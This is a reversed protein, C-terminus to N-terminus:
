AHNSGFLVESSAKSKKFLVLAEDLDGMVWYIRGLHFYAKAEIGQDTGTWANYPSINTM